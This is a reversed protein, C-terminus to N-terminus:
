FLFAYDNSCVMQPDTGCICERLSIKIEETTTDNDEWFAVQFTDWESEPIEEYSTVDNGTNETYLEAAAEFTLAAYVYYYGDNFFKIVKM